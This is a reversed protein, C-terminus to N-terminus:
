ICNDFKIFVWTVINFYIYTSMDENNSYMKYM